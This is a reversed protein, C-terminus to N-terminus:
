GKELIKLSGSANRVELPIGSIWICKGTKKVKFVVEKLSDRVVPILISRDNWFCRTRQELMKFQMYSTLLESDTM